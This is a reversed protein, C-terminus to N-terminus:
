IAKGIKQPKAKKKVECEQFQNKSCNVNNLIKDSSNNQRLQQAHSKDSPRESDVPKYM